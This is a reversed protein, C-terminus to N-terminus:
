TRIHLDDPWAFRRVDRNECHLVKIPLLEAEIIACLVTFNAHMMPNQAIASRITHGGDKYRSRFHSRTDLHVCERTTPRLNSPLRTQLPRGTALPCLAQHEQRQM